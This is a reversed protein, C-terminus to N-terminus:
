YLCLVKIALTPDEQARSDDNAPTGAFRSGRVAAFATAIRSGRSAPGSATSVSKKLDQRSEHKKWSVSVPTVVGNCSVTSHEPLLLPKNIRMHTLRRHRSSRVYTGASAGQLQYIASLWDAEHGGTLGHATVEKNTSWTSLRRNWHTRPLGVTGQHDSRLYDVLM